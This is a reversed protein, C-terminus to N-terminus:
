WHMRRITTSLIIVSSKELIKCVVSTLSVPRYNSLDKKDGKKYLATINASKWSCPLKGTSLSSRFILALPTALQSALEKLARPHDPRTQRTRSVKITELWISTKWGIWYQNKNRGNQIIFKETWTCASCWWFYWYLCKCLFKVFGWSETWWHWHCILPWIVFVSRTYQKQKKIKFKCIQLFEKTRDLHKLSYTKWLIKSYKQNYNTSQQPM